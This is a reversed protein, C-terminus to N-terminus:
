LHTHRPVYIYRDSSQKVRSVKLLLFVLTGGRKFMVIYIHTIHPSCCTCVHFVNSNLGNISTSFSDQLKLYDYWLRQVNRNICITLTVRSKCDSQCAVVNGKAVDWPLNLANKCDLFVNKATLREATSQRRHIQANRDNSLREARVLQNHVGPASAVVRTVQEMKRSIKSMGAPSFLNRADVKISCLDKLQKAFNDVAAMGQEVEQSLM